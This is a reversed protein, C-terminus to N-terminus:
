IRQLIFSHIFTVHSPPDGVSTGIFTAVMKIKYATRKRRIRMKMMMM